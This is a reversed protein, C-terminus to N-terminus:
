GGFWNVAIDENIYEVMKDLNRPTYNMCAQEVCVCYYNERYPNKEHIHGHINVIPAKLNNLPSHSLYIHETYKEIGGYFDKFGAKLYWQRTKNDHNGKILIIDGNLQEVISAINEESGRGYSFDGLHYVTDEPKVVRNWNDIMTKNMEEVSSFPRGTYEIINFHDFHTDAVVWNTM